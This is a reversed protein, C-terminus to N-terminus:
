AGTSTPPVQRPSSRLQKYGSWIDRALAEYSDFARAASRGFHRQIHQRCFNQLGKASSLHKLNSLILEAEPRYVEQDTTVTLLGAPDYKCLIELVRRRFALDVPDKSYSLYKVHHRLSVRRYHLFSDFLFGVLGGELGALISFVAVNSVVTRVTGKGVENRLFQWAFEAPWFILTLERPFGEMRRVSSFLIALGVAVLALALTYRYKRM